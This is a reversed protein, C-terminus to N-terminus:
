PKLFPNARGIQSEDVSIAPGQRAHNKNLKLTPIPPLSAEAQKVTTTGAPNLAKNTQLAMFAVGALLVLVIVYNLFHPGQRVVKVEKDKKKKDKDRGKEPVVEPVVSEVPAPTVVKKEEKDKAM